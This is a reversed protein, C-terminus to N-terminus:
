FAAPLCELFTGILANQLDFGKLTPRVGASNALILGAYQTADIAAEFRKFFDDQFHATYDAAEIGAALRLRLMLYETREDGPSLTDEQAVPREGAGTCRLYEDLSEANSQRTTIGDRLCSHAAVGLGLYEGGMWYKLNHRCEFGPLAFNSTEYHAYGAHQLIEVAAHYMARDEEEDAGSFEAALRTGEELKLAYCSIHQMGSGVLSHLTERYSEASQGPLAFITDANINKFFIRATELAAAFQAYTHRRGIASLLADDHTQLGLSLRNVGCEAYGALKEEDLTEPNAEATVEEAAWNCENRLGSLLRAMQSASLLSPTGGGIFVTDVARSRLVDAYLGAEKLVAGIYADMDAERGPYSVFDCYYCKRRCFPIHIYVGLPKM